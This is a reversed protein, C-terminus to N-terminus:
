GIINNLKRKKLFRWIFYIIAGLIIIPLGIVVFWGIITYIINESSVAEENSLIENIEEQTYEKKIIPHLESVKDINNKYPYLLENDTSSAIATMIKLVRKTDCGKCVGSSHLVGLEEFFQRMGEEGVKKYFNYFVLGSHTYFLNLDETNSPLEYMFTKEYSTKLTSTIFRKDLDQRFLLNGASDTDIFYDKEGLYADGAFNQFFVAIGEDLWGTEKQEGNFMLPFTVAHAMEHIILKQLSPIYDNALVSRDILIVNPDRLFGGSEQYLNGRGSLNDVVLYMKEISTKGTVKQFMESVFGLDKVALKLIEIEDKKGLLTFIGVDESSYGDPFNKPILNVSVEGFNDNKPYNLEIKGTQLSAPKSGIFNLTNPYTLSIKNTQGLWPGTLLTLDYAAFVPTNFVPTMEYSLQVDEIGSSKRLIATIENGVINTENSPSGTFKPSIKTIGIEPIITIFSSYKNADVQITHTFSLDLNDNINGTISQSAFIALPIFFCVFIIGKIFLLLKM